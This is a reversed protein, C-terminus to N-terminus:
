CRSGYKTNTLLVYDTKRGAGIRHKMIYGARKLEKLYTSVSRPSANMYAAIDEQTPYANVAAKLMSFSLYTKIAGGTLRPISKVLASPLTLSM